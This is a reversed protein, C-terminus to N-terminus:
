CTKSIFEEITSWDEEQNCSTERYNLKVCDRDPPSGDSPKSWKRPQQYSSGKQWEEEMGASQRLVIDGKRQVGGFWTDLSAILTIRIPSINHKQRSIYFQLM